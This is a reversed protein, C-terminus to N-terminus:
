PFPRRYWLRQVPGEVRARLPHIRRAQQENLRSTGANVNVIMAAVARDKRLLLGSCDGIAPKARWVLSRLLFGMSSRLDIYATAKAVV